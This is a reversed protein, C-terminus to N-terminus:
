IKNIKCKNDLRSGSDIMSNATFAFLIFFIVKEKM